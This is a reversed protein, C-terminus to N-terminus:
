PRPLTRAVSLSGSTPNPRSLLPFDLTNDGPKVEADVGDRCSPPLIDIPVEHEGGTAMDKIKGMEAAQAQFTVKNKGLAVKQCRYKGDVIADGVVPGQGSGVPSFTVTGKPVAKGDITVTGSVTANRYEEGSCGLCFGLLIAFVVSPLRTTPLPRPRSTM